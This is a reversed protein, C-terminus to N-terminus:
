WGGTGTRDGRGSLMVVAILIGTRL